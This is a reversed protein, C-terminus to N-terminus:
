CAMCIANADSLILLKIHDFHAAAMNYAHGQGHSLLFGDSISQTAEKHITKSNLVSFQLESDFYSLIIVYKKTTRKKNERKRNKNRGNERSKECTQVYYIGFHVCKKCM